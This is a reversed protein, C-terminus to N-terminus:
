QRIMKFVLLAGRKGELHFNETYFLGTKKMFAPGGPLISAGM